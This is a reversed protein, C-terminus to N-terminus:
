IHYVTVYLALSISSGQSKAIVDTKLKVSGKIEYIKV